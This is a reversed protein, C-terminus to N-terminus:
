SDYYLVVTSTGCKSCAANKTMPTKGAKEAAQIKPDHPNGTKGLKNYCSSCYAATEGM